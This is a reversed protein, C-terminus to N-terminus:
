MVSVLLGRTHTDAWSRSCWDGGMFCKCTCYGEVSRQQWASPVNQAKVREMVENWILHECNCDERKLCLSQLRTVDGRSVILGCLWIELLVQHYKGLPHCNSGLCALEAFVLSFCSLPHPRGAQFVQTAERLIIVGDTDRIVPNDLGCSAPCCLQGRLCWTGQTEQSVQSM